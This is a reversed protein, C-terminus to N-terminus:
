AVCVRITALSTVIGVGWVVEGFEGVDLTVDDVIVKNWAPGAWTSGTYQM